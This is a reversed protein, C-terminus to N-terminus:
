GLITGNTQGVAMQLPLNRGTSLRAGAEFSGNLHQCAREFIELHSWATEKPRLVFLNQKLASRLM